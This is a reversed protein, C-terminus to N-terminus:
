KSSVVDWETDKKELEAETWEWLQRCEELKDAWRANAGGLKGVPTYYAGDKLDERNAGAAAWLQNFAGTQTNQMVLPGILALGYRVLLNTKKTSSYLDTQILGPHISISKIGQSVYRRSLEAAFMVNAAKSAGYRTWPGEKALKDNSVITPFAPALNWAESSLTVVRVDASPMQSTQTLTPLLLRTLLFHGIHNTGLQIEHGTPTTGAPVAMIGANLILLDLRSQTSTFSRVAAHISSFSSLDLSLFSIKTASSKSPKLKEIAEAAKSESRAALYIHSPNHQALQLITEYGLGTNGLLAILLQATLNVEM